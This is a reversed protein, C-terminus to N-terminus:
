GSALSNSFLERVQELAKELAPLGARLAILDGAKGAKELAFAAAELTHCSLMAASGKIKHGMQGAAKAESKAILSKLAVLETPAAEIFMRMVRALVVEDNALRALVAKRDFIAIDPETVAMPLGEQGLQSSGPEGVNLWRELVLHLSQRSFPKSIYDNMGASLCQKQDGPMANATMAVIPLKPNPVRTAGSRIIRTADLGDMEPMQIDMLVLDYPNAELAAIAEAGNAVADAAYGLQALVTLAVEQNVPNDEALLIHFKERQSAELPQCEDSQQPSRGTATTGTFGLAKALCDYLDSQRVPKTLCNLFGIEGRRPPGSRRTLTTMLVVSSEGPDANEAVARRLTDDNIGPMQRDLIIVRYPDGAAAARILMQHASSASIAAEPRVGWEKLMLSIVERSSSNADILLLRLGHLAEPPLGPQAAVVGPEQRGLRATFWFTSGRGDESIIGIQGGMKETLLKSIALGLGTGGYKRSTSPDVQQFASFLPGIKEAPIGIGSDQVTFRLMVGDSEAAALSVRVSIEGQATFKVANGTLNILIQRLRGPDGKLLTPTEPDIGCVFELGKAQAPLALLEAFDDLLTRLDFNDEVLELRGAEIKSFDLIDNIIDLLSHGSSRIIEGYHRQEDNLNTGLLLETMSIVGSMPTRIEHSMNALFQGKAINAAKALEITAELQQNTAKLKDEAEKRASIDLLILHLIQRNGFQILSSSVEVERISGDALRHQCQCLGGQEAVVAAMAEELEAAPAINLDNVRMALMQERYYGYFYTAASNVDLLQGNEPDVLLMVARNDAFQRRYTTESESLQTFAAGLQQEAANTVSWLLAIVGGFMSTMLGLGLLLNSQTAGTQTTMDRLVILDAVERGLSDPLHIVGCFLNQNGRTAPFVTAEGFPSHEQALLESVAQPINATTQHAVVFNRYTDWQGAFGFTQRGAEFNAQSTFNKRLVTILELDLSHALDDAFDEIEMGLELYGILIGDQRWPRVYRLTFTGLTGLDAGWADEGTQEAIMLTNRNIRDGSREPQHVRLFCTRDPEIFYFHTIKNDRQLEAFTAKAQRTLTALDRAQWATRLAADHTVHSIQAKLIQVRSALRRDWENRAQGTLSLMNKRADVLGMRYQYVGFLLGGTLVALATPAVIWRKLHLTDTLRHRNRWRIVLMGLLLITIMGLTLLIPGLKAANVQAQWDAADIDIGVVMVLKNTAQDLVPAIASVFTGYEDSGPGETLPHRNQFIQRFAETPELYETGPWSAQPDDSRYNEPGFFIRGDRMAMSYIGRQPFLKGAARMQECIREYAPTGRDSATFTLKKALDPNIQRALELAQQLITERMEADVARSRSNAALGGLVLLVLVAAAPIIVTIHTIFFTKLFKM